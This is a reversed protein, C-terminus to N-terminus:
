PSLRKLFDLVTAVQLIEACNCNWSANGGDFAQGFNVTLRRNITADSVIQRSKHLKQQWRRCDEINPTSIVAASPL